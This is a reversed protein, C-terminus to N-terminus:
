LGGTYLHTTCQATHTHAQPVIIITIGHKKNITNVSIPSELKASFYYNNVKM